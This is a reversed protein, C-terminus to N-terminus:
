LSDTDKTAGLAPASTEPSADPTPPPVPAWEDTIMGQQESVEAVERATPPPPVGQERGPWDLQGALPKQPQGDTSM